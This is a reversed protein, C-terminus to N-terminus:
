SSEDFESARELSVAHDSLVIRLPTVNMIGM